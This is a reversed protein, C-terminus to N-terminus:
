KKAVAFIFINFFVRFVLSLLHLYEILCIELRIRWPLKAVCILVKLFYIRIKRDLVYLFKSYLLPPIEFYWSFFHGDIFLVPAIGM